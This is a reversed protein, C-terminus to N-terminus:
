EHENNEGEERMITILFRAGDLYRKDLTIKGNFIKLINWIIFLGLGEGGSQQSPDKTTFFPEFIKAQFGEPIGPGTDSFWITVKSKFDRISVEIKKEGNEGDMAQMANLILNYFIQDFQIPDGWLVAKNNGRISYKINATKLRSSLNQFVEQIRFAVNFSMNNSKSSVIPRFRDLLKGIRQTQRLILELLEDVDETTDTGKRRRLQYLQTNYRINTIPQGLEHSFGKLLDRLAIMQRNHEQESVLDKLKQWVAQESEQQEEIRSDGRRRRNALLTSLRSLEANAEDFMNFRLYFNYLTRSIAPSRTASVKMQGLITKVGDIDGLTEFFYVLEYQINFDSNSIFDNNITLCKKVDSYDSQKRCVRLFSAIIDKTCIKPDLVMKELLVQADKYQEHRELVQVLYTDIKKTNRRAVSSNVRYQLLYSLGVLDKHNSLENFHRKVEEFNTDSDSLLALAHLKPSAIFESRKWLEAIKRAIDCSIEHRKVAVLIQDQYNALFDEDVKQRIRGYFRVFTRFLEPRNMRKLNELYASAAEEYCDIDMYLDGLIKFFFNDTPYEVTAIKCQTIAENIKGDYRLISINKAYQNKDQLLGM